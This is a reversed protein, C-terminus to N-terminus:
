GATFNFTFFWTFVLVFLFYVELPVDAVVIRDMLIM